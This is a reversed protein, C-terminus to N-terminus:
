KMAAALSGVFDEMDEAFKEISKALAALNDETSAKADYEKDVISYIFTIFAKDTQLTTPVYSEILQKFLRKNKM